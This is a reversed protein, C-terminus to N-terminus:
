LINRAFFQRAIRRSLIKSCHIIIGKAKSSQRESQVAHIM